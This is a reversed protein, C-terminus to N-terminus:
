FFIIRLGGAVVIAVIVAVVVYTTFDSDFVARNTFKLKM